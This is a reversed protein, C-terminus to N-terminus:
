FYNFYIINNWIHSLRITFFRQFTETHAFNHSLKSLDTNYRLNRRLHLLSCKNLLFTGLKGSRAKYALLVDLTERRYSLPLLNSRILRDKYDMDRNRCIYITARRQVSELLELNLKSVTAWVTSAFELQSRVLAIYLIRKAKLPAKPGLTRKIFYLNTNAKKIMLSIQENWLMNDQIIIGLDKM